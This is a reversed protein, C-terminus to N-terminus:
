ANVQAAIQKAYEAAGSLDTEDPHKRNMFFWAQGKCVFPEGLVKFGRDRLLQQIDQGIKKQGGYTAFVAVNKVNAPDLQKIFAETRKNPKGAYVGDGIFLLDVSGSLPAPDKTIAEATTNLAEAITRALKETNGTSSHYMVKVNM